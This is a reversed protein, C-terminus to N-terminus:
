TLHESIYFSPLQPLRHSENVCLEIQMVYTSYLFPHQKPKLRCVFYTSCMKFSPLLSKHSINPVTFNELPFFNPSPFFAGSCSSSYLALITLCPLLWLLDPTSPCPEVLFEGQGRAVHSGGGVASLEELGPPLHYHDLKQVHNHDTIVSAQSLSIPYCTFRSFYFTGM